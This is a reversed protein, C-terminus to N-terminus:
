KIAISVAADRSSLQCRKAIRSLLSHVLLPLRDPMPLPEDVLMVTEARASRHQPLRAPYANGDPKSGDVFASPGCGSCPMRISNPTESGQPKSCKMSLM